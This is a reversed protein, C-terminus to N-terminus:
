LASRSNEWSIAIKALRLTITFNNKFSNYHDFSVIENKYQRFLEHKRNLYIMIADSIWPKRLRAFIEKEKIPCCSSYIVFLNNCFNNTNSSVDQNIHVHNNVYREVKLKLRDINQRSHDRFKVHIRKQPCNIPVITFIPYHDTIDLLFICNFTDYLQNSWIHDLISLNNNRSNQFKKNTQHNTFM